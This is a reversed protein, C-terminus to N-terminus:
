KHLTELDAHLQEADLDAFAPVTRLTGATPFVRVTSSLSTNDAIAPEIELLQLSVLRGLAASILARTRSLYDASSGLTMRFDLEYDLHIM